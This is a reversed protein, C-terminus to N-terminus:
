NKSDKDGLSASAPAAAATRGPAGIARPDDGRETGEDVCRVAASSGAEECTRVNATSLVEFRQVKRASRPLM